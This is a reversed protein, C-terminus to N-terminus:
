IRMDLSVEMVRSKEGSYVLPGDKELDYLMIFHSKRNELEWEEFVGGYISSHIEEPTMLMIEAKSKYSRKSLEEFLGNEFLHKAALDLQVLDIGREKLAREFDSAAGSRVISLLSHIYLSKSLESHQSMVISYVKYLSENPLSPLGVEGLDSIVQLASDYDSKCKDAFGSIMDSRNPSSEISKAANSFKELDSSFCFLIGSDRKINYMVNMHPFPKPMHRWAITEAWLRSVSSFEAKKVRVIKNAQARPNEEM